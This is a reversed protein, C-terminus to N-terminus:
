NNLSSDLKYRIVVGEGTIFAIKALKKTTECISPDQYVKTWSTLGSKNNPRNKILTPGIRLSYGISTKTIGTCGDIIENAKEVADEFRAFPRIKKNTIPDKSVTPLYNAEFPGCWGDPAIPRASIDHVSNDISRLANIFVDKPINLFGSKSGYKDTLQKVVDTM